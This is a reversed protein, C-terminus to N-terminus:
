FSCGSTPLQTIDVPNLREGLAALLPQPCYRRGDIRLELHLHSAGSRGTNGTDAIHQGPAIQDGVAVHNRVNHCYTHRLGDAHQITIGVGCTNCGAPPMSGDCGAHW